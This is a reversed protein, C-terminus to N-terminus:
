RYTGGASIEIAISDAIHTERSKTLEDFIDAVERCRLCAIGPPPIEGRQYRCFECKWPVGACAKRDAQRCEKKCTCLIADNKM